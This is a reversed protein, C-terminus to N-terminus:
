FRCDHSFLGDTGGTAAGMDGHTDLVIFTDNSKLSCRPRSVSQTASIYFADEAPASVPLTQAASKPSM